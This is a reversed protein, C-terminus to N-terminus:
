RAGPPTPPTRSRLFRAMDVDLKRIHQRLWGTLWDSLEVTLIPSPGHERLRARWGRLGEIFAAHGAVHDPFGPYGAELMLREEMAFHKSAYTALYDFLQGVEGVGGAKMATHLTGVHEYFERHQADIEHVGVTLEEPFFLAM